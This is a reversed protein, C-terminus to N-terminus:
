GLQGNQLQFCLADVAGSPRLYFNPFQGCQVFGASKFLRLSTDNDAAVISMLLRLHLFNFAYEALLALAMKSIGRGRQSASVMIAVWATQHRPSFDYLDILGVPTAEENNLCIVLRLQKDAFVDAQQSSIYDRLAKASFPQINSGADWVSADNEMSYLFPVDDLELARLQITDNKLMRLM